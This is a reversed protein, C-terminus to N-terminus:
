VFVCGRGESARMARKMSHSSRRYFDVHIWQSFRHSAMSRGWVEESAVSLERRGQGHHPWLCIPFLAM